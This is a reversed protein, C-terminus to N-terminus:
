LFTFTLKNNMYRFCTQSSIPLGTYIDVNEWGMVNLRPTSLKSM